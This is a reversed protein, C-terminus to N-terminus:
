SAAESKGALLPLLWEKKQAESAFMSLLEMNGTDPANCNFVEAGILSRGMSEALPAYDVNSLGPGWDPDPMFLNWLGETRARQKLEGMIPPEHHRNPLTALQDHHVAEAPFVHDRMFADVRQQLDRSGDSQQSDM